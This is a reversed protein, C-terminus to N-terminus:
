DTLKQLFQVSKSLNRVSELALRSTKSEVLRGKSCEWLQWTMIKCCCVLKPPGFFLRKPKRERASPNKARSEGKRFYHVDHGGEDSRIGTEAGPERGARAGEGRLASPTDMHLSCRYCVERSKDLRKQSAGRGGPLVWGTGPRSFGQADAM